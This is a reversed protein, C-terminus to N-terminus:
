NRACFQFRRSYISGYFSFFSDVVDLVSLSCYSTQSCSFLLVVLSFLYSVIISCFPIVLGGATVTITGSLGITFVLLLFVLLLSFMWDLVSCCSTCSPRHISDLLKFHKMRLHSMVKLSGYLVSLYIRFITGLGLHFKGWTHWCFQLSCRVHPFIVVILWYLRKTTVDGAM